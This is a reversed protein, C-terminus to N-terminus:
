GSANVLTQVPKELCLSLLWHSGPTVEQSSHSVTIPITEAYEAWMHVTVEPSGAVRLFLLQKRNKSGWFPQRQPDRPGVLPEQHLGHKPKAKCAPHIFLGDLQKSKKCISLSALRQRRDHRPGKRGDEHRIGRVRLVGVVM